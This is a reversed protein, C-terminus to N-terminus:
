RSVSVKGEIVDRMKQVFVDTDFRKAREECSRRMERVPRECAVRYLSMVVRLLPRQWIPVQQVM